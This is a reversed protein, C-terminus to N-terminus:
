LFIINNHVCYVLTTRPRITRIPLDRYFRAPDTKVGGRQTGTRSREDTVYTRTKKDSEVHTVREGLVSM